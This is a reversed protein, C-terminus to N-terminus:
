TPDDVGTGSRGAATITGHHSDKTDNVDRVIYDSGSKNIPAVADRTVLLLGENRTLGDGLTSEWGDNPNMVISARGGANNALSYGTGDVLLLIENDDRNTEAQTAEYTFLGDVGRSCQFSLNAVFSQTGTGNTTLNIATGAYANALSTALKVHDDDIKIGYYPTAAALPAALTGGSVNVFLPGDGTELGHATKALQDTTSDATFTGTPANIPIRKNTMTGLATTLDTSNSLSLYVIALAMFDTGRDALDGSDARVLLDVRRKRALTENKDWIATGTTDGTGSGSGGSATAGVNSTNGFIRTAGGEVVSFAWVLQEQTDGATSTYICRYRGTSVLAMTTSDLRSSRDTGAQNVLAVTPAADPAEMNGVEDYLMLEIRYTRTSTDPIDITEPVVRVCRTNNQISTVETSSAVNGGVNLNDLYGARATTLRAQLTADEVKPIGAVTPAAADTGLWKKVDILPYGAVNPAAVASAAWSAVDVGAGLHAQYGTTSDPNTAWARAVTAVKTTGNYATCLRCQGAGVGSVLELWLGKYFDDVASATSQLTISTAAGAQALGETLVSFSEGSIEYVSTADPNTAWNRNVTAMKTSGTYAIIFRTQGAGTGGTITIKQRSYFADTASAGAALQIQNNGTGAGQATGSAIADTALGGIAGANANPIQSGVVPLGTNAGAAANPLATVGMRVSDYPDYAVVNILNPADIPDAGTATARLTAAKLTDTHSSTLSIDYHGNGVETVTPSISSLTHAGQKKLTVALTLGTKGTKGDASDAAWVGVDIATSQKVPIGPM